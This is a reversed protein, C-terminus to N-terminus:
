HKDRKVVVRKKRPSFEQKEETRRDTRKRGFSSEGWASSKEARRPKGSPKWAPKEGTRGSTKEGPRGTFKEAPKGFGGSPYDRKQRPHEDSGFKKEGGSNPRGRRKERVSKELVKLSEDFGRLFEQLDEAFLIVSQRDFGGEDRNKSEVINLYLDGMRNEKVNFFYTRNQLVVRTSFVEGRVGM